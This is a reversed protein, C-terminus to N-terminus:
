EVDIEEEIFRINYEELEDLIPNYLEPIVPVHVGTLNIKETALLRTAIAAPTGVTIAMATEEQSKGIYAFSSQIGHKKGNLLYEFQHQMVIMDKDQPELAWKEELLKQLIQAPSANKMAIPKDDFIGLWRLKNMIEGDPSLKMFECLKEEVSQIPDYRLFSNLFDRYSTNEDGVYEINDDTMGLQVFVNWAAGYGPRRMTGRYITPIDELGYTKRYSLSDRNAYIEFEGYNLVKTIETRSFLQTYPIYKYKGNRIFCATGQGALVVNRPNWTFKYHWPNNDYEPAVLGGTSSKFLTIKGGKARINDIIRMASMHDIGPDVGLENLFCLGKEKAEVDLSKMEKSVYSATVMHKNHKLCAKAIHFHFRAPLMSVAIDCAAVETDIQSEDNVDFRFAEGNPHSHIKMSALAENLDGLRIKWDETDSYKLLYNILSTTSLGAGLVLIRKM